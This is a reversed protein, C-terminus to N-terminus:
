PAAKWLEVGSATGPVSSSGAVPPRLLYLTRPSGPGTSTGSPAEDRGEDWGHGLARHRPIAPRRRRRLLVHTKGVSVGPLGNLSIGKLVEDGGRHRGVELTGLPDSQRRQLLAQRTRRDARLRGAVAERACPGPGVQDRGSTGDSRWLESGHEKEYAFFVLKRGVRTLGYPSSGGRPKIDKVLRTGDATGNSRWLERGGRRRLLQLVAHGPTRSRRPAGGPFTSTVVLRTGAETGDSRWLERGHAGDRATFFLKDGVSTVWRPRSSASGPNVDAGAEHGSADWGVELARLWPSRRGATFFLRGRHALSGRNFAFTSVM